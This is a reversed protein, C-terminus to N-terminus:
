PCVPQAAIIGTKHLRGVDIRQSCFTDNKSRSKSMIRHSEWRVGIDEEACCREVVTDVGVRIKHHFIFVRSKGFM